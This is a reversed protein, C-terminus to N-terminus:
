LQLDDTLQVTHRSPKIRKMQYKVKFSTQWTTILCYLITKNTIVVLGLTANLDSFINIICPNTEITIIVAWTVEYMATTVFYEFKEGALYLKVM